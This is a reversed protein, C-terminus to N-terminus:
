RDTKGAKRKALELNRKARELERYARKLEEEKLQPDKAMQANGYAQPDYGQYKPYEHAAVLDRLDDGLDSIENYFSQSALNRNLHINLKGKSLSCYFYSDGNTKRNWEYGDRDTKVYSDGLRDLVLRKVAEHKDTSFDADFKYAYKSKSVSSQSSIKNEHSSAWTTKHVKGDDQACATAGTILLFLIALTQKLNKM